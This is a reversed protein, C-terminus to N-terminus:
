INGPCVFGKVEPGCIPHLSPRRIPAIQSRVLHIEGDWAELFVELYRSPGIREWAHHIEGSPMPRRPEANPSTVSVIFTVRQGWRLVGGHNRFIRVVRGNIRVVNISPPSSQVRPRWIQVHLPAEARAEEYVEPAMM